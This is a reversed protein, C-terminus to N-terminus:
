GYLKVVVFTAWTIANGAGHILSPILLNNTKIRLWVFFLGSVLYILLLLITEFIYGQQFYDLMRVSHITGFTFCLTSLVVAWKIGLKQQFGTFFLGRFTLEQGVGIIFGTIFWVGVQQVLNHELIMNIEEVQQLSFLVVSGLFGWILYSRQEKTWHVSLLKRLEKIYFFPLSALIVFGIELLLRSPQNFYWHTADHIWPDPSVWYRIPFELLLAWLFITIINYNKLRPKM